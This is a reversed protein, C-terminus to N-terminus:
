VGPWGRIENRSAGWKLIAGFCQEIIAVSSGAKVDDLTAIRKQISGWFEGEM